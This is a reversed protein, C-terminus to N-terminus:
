QRWQTDLADIMQQTLDGYRTNQAEIAYPIIAAGLISQIDPIIQREVAQLWDRPPGSETASAPVVMGACILLVFSLLPCGAWQRLYIRM